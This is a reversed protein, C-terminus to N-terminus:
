NTFPKKQQAADYAAAEEGSLAESITERGILLLLIGVLWVVGCAASAFWFFEAQSSNINSAESFARSAFWSSIIPAFVFIGAGWRGIENLTTKSKILIRSVPQGKKLRYVTDEM